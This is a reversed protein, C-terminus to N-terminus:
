AVSDTRSREENIYVYNKRREHEEIKEKVVRGRILDVLSGCVDQIVEIDVIVKALSRCVYQISEIEVVGRRM